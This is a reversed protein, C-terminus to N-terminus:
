KARSTYYNPMLLRGFGHLVCRGNYTSMKVYYIDERVPFVAIYNSVFIYKLIQQEFPTKNTLQPM